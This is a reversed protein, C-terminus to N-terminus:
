LLKEIQASLKRNFRGSMAGTHKMVIKHDRDILFLSPIGRIRYLRGVKKSSDMLNPYHLGYVDVFAKVKELADERDLSIGLLVFGQDKYRQHLAELFPASAKCPTCWTAWFELMVVKGKFDSLSVKRGDIDKLTFSLAQDGEKPAPVTKAQCSLLLIVLLALLPISRKLKM